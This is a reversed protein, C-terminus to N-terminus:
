VRRYVYTFICINIYYNIHVYSYMNIFICIQIYMYEVRDSGGSSILRIEEDEYKSIIDVVCQKAKTELKVLDSVM